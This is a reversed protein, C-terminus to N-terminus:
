FTYRLVLKGTYAEYDSNFDGRGNIDIIWSKGLSLSVGVQGVFTTDAIDKKLHYQPLGQLFSKVIVENDGFAQELRLSCYLFGKNKEQSFKLLGNIGFFAKFYDIRDNKYYRNWANNASVETHFDDAQYITYGFGIEPVLIFKEREIFSYGMSLESDVGWSDYEAKEKLEYNAGTFGEYDHDTRYLNFLFKVFWTQSFYTISIGGFYLDQDEKDPGLVSFDLDLRGIGSYMNAVLNDTLQGGLGLTFGYADADFGLDDAEVRTYLPMVFLNTQYASNMKVPVPTASALLIKRNDNQALFYPAAGLPSFATITRVFSTSIISPAVQALALARSNKGPVYAFKVASNVGKDEGAWNVTLEPNKWGRLLQGFEGKVTGQNDIIYYPTNFQLNKLDVLVLLKTNNLNLVSKSDVSIPRLSVNTANDSSPPIGPTGFVISFTDALTVTSNELRLTRVNRVKTGESVFIGVWVMGPNYLTVNASDVIYIGVVDEVTSGGGTVSATITGENSIYSNLLNSFGVGYIESIEAGKGASVLASISGKNSFSFINAGFGVGGVFGISVEANDGSADGAIVSASITGTNEFIDVSVQLDVGYINNVGVTLFPATANGVIGSAYIKGTRNNQFLDLNTNDGLVGRVGWISQNDEKEDSIEITESNVFSTEGSPIELGVVGMALVKGTLALFTLFFCVLNKKM